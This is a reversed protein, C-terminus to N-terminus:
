LREGENIFKGSSARLAVSDLCVLLMGASTELYHILDAEVLRYVLRPNRDVLVAAEEPAVM